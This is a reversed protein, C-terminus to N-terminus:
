FNRGDGPEDPDPHNDQPEDSNCDNGADPKLSTIWTEIAELTAMPITEQGGPPMKGEKLISLFFSQKPCGPVILMRPMPSANHDHPTGVIISGIDSLAVNRNKSTAQRHCGLCSVNVFDRQISEQTPSVTVAGGQPIPESTRSCASLALLMPALMFSVVTHKSSYTDVAVNGELAIALSRKSRTASSKEM